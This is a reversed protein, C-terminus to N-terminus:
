GHSGNLRMRPGNPSDVAREIDEPFCGRHLPLDLRAADREGQPYQSAAARVFPQNGEPFRGAGVVLDSAALPQVRGVITDDALDSRATGVFSFVILCGSSFRPL